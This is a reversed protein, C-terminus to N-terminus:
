FTFHSRRVQVAVANRPGLNPLVVSLTSAAHPALSDGLDGTYQYLTKCASEKAQMLSTNVGFLQRGVGRLDMEIATMGAAELEEKANVSDPASSM